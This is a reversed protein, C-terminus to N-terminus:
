LRIRGFKLKGARVVQGPKPIVNLGPDTVREGDITVAGQQVLRRAESNSAAMGAKVLLKAIWIRGDELDGAALLIEPMDTPIERQSFM